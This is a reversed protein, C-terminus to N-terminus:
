QKTVKSYIRECTSGAIYAGDAEAAYKGAMKDSEGLLEALVRTTKAKAASAAAIASLRGTESGALQRQLATLQSQLGDAARQAGAADAQVKALEEDAHHQEENVALQRRQEEGREVVERHLTATSDALDRQLWQQSWASDASDYGADYARWLLFAVLLTIALPEWYAKAFAILGTMIYASGFLIGCLWGGLAYLVM